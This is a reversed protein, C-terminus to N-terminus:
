QFFMFKIIDLYLNTVNTNSIFLYPRRVKIHRSGKKGQFADLTILSHVGHLKKVKRTGSHLVIFSEM